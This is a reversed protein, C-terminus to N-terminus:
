DLRAQRLARHQMTFTIVRRALRRIARGVVGLHRLERGAVVHLDRAPGLAHKGAHARDLRHVAAFPHARRKLAQTELDALPGPGGAPLASFNRVGQKHGLWTGIGADPASKGSRKSVRPTGRPCRGLGGAVPPPPRGGSSSVSMVWRNAGRPRESAMAESAPAASIAPGAMAWCFAGSLAVFGGAAAVAGSSVLLFGGAAAAAVLLLGSVTSCRMWVSFVDSCILGSWSALHSATALAM